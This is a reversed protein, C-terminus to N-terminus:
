GKRHLPLHLLGLRHATLLIFGFALVILLVSLIIWLVALILLPLALRERRAPVERLRYQQQPPEGRPMTATVPMAVPRTERAPM